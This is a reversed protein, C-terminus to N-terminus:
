RIKEELIEAHNREITEIEKNITEIQHSMIQRIEMLGQKYNGKAGGGYKLSTISLRSRKLRIDIGGQPHNRKDKQWKKPRERPM